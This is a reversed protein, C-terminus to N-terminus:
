RGKWIWHEGGPSVSISVTGDLDTRGLDLERRAVRSLVDRAPHGFRNRRGASVIVLDPDIADLWAESTSTSSGHHGLKLVQARLGDGHREVLLQEVESGADGPLVASFSGYTVRLVVSIQNADEVADLAEPDPWLIQFRVGDLEMDRGSRAERWAIGSDEILRLLELYPASGTALGPDLVLGVPLNRLVAGAGGIHDLHPHTLILAEIRLAGRGRLFPLVRREGADYRADAPGADVLIWRRGPTRIAVADGQGVDLVHIELGAPSFDPALPRFLLAAAAAGVGVISRLRRGGSGVLSFGLLGVAAAVSWTWWDPRPVSGNGFPVGAALDALWVLADLSLAAGAAFSHAALPLLPQVLLAALAGVVAISMLPVAPIGAPISIPAIVGFHHAVIPATTLFAAIGVGLGDLVGRSWGRRAISEPALDLIPQRLFLLGLVGAFSLQFGPDLIALPRFGLILFAAASVIPAAASPRQLLSAGLGLSIMAGARLASAPAGIVGLYVWTLALTALVTSRRSLRTASGILLLTAALLGVHMGSIALLHSLGARAFRERLAPDMYERRGLLLAEVLELHAPFLSALRRDAAARLRLWVSAAGAVVEMSDVQLYGAVRADAPWASGSSRSEMKRWTGSLSVSTALEVAQDESRPLRIRIEARCILLTSVEVRSLPLLPSRGSADEVPRFGAGLVGKLRLTSGEALLARCDREVEWRAYSGAASGAAAFLLLILAREAAVGRERYVWGAGALSCLVILFIAPALEPPPAFRLSLLLGSLYALLAAVLPRRLQNL